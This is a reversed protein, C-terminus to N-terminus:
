LATEVMLEGEDQSARKDGACRISGIKRQVEGREGGMWSDALHWQSM